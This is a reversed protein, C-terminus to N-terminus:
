PQSSKSPPPLNLPHEDREDKGDYMERIEKKLDKIQKIMMGAIRIMRKVILFLETSLAELCEAYTAHSKTVGNHVIETQCAPCRVITM